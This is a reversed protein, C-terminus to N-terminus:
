LTNDEAFVLINGDPDTVSASKKGLKVAIGRARLQRAAAAASPVRFLLRPQNGAGAASVQIWPYAKSTVRAKLGAKGEETAFGLGAAYFQKAAALDPVPFEVGVLEEAIRTAGLHKGRDLTHLSGPMYQTFETVRDEPDQLTFLLNGAGAKKVPTLKLGHAAYLANLGNLDDSEYCVHMWGLPQSPSTQQYVEIFERDNVKVFAQMTKAGLPFGFSEEFGLKQFFALEKELDSTRYAVHAIGTVAPAQALAGLPFACFVALALTGFWRTKMTM